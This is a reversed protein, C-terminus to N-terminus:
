FCSCPSAGSLNMYSLTKSPYNPITFRPDLSVIGVDCNVAFREYEDRPLKEFFRANHINNEEIFKKLKKSETGSGIAIFFARPTDKLRLLANQIFPINQPKGMNGSFIFICADKPISYTAEFANRDPPQFDAVDQTNPFYVVDDSRLYPNHKRIYDINGQSMCGIRTATKLMQKEM